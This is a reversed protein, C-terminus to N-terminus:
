WGMSDFASQMMAATVGKLEPNMRVIQDHWQKIAAPQPKSASLAEPLPIRKDKSVFMWIEGTEDRDLFPLPRM